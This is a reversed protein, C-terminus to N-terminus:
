ESKSVTYPATLGILLPLVGNYGHATARDGIWNAGNHIVDLGCANSNRSRFSLFSTPFHKRLLPKRHCIGITPL